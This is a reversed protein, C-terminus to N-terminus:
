CTRRDVVIYRYFLIVFGCTVKMGILSNMLVIYINQFVVLNTEPVLTRLGVFVVFIPILFISVFILKEILTILKVPIDYVNYIMYRCIFFSAIVVGGQFGGGPTDLGVSIMSIGFLLVLPSIARITYSAIPNSEITSHEGDKVYSDSYWSVHKVAVVSVLLILAEFLTDYVRYGLYVTTVPNHSGVDQNFYTLYQYKMYSNYTFPPMFYWFLLFLVGSFIIPLLAKIFNTKEKKKTVVLSEDFGYYKELCIILFITTFAGAAAESLSVDPAGLVLFIASNILSFIGLFIIMRYIKKERIIFIASIIWFILLINIM